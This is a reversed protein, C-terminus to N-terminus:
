RHNGHSQTINAMTGSAARGSDTWHGELVAGAVSGAPRSPGELADSGPPTTRQANDRQQGRHTHTHPTSPWNPREVSAPARKTGHATDTAGQRTNVLACATHPIHTNNAADYSVDGEKKNKQGHKNKQEDKEKTGEDKQTQETTKKNIGEQTQKDGKAIKKSLSFYFPFLAHTCQLCLCPCSTCRHLLAANKTTTHTAPAKDATAGSPHPM